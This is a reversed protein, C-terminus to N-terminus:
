PWVDSGSVELTRRGWTFMALVGFGILPLLSPEPVPVVSIADLLDVRQSGDGVFPDSFTLLTTSSSATVYFDSWVWGLDNVSHGGPNWSASGINNDGWLVNVVAPSGTNFNGALAFQLHYEQGATTPLDQFITGYAICYNHGEAADPFNWAIGINYTWGWDLGGQEFGGDVVISGSPLTFHPQQGLLELTAATVAILVMIATKM